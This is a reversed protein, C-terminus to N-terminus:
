FGGHHKMFELEEATSDRGLATNRHPFRGFRDIVEKHRMAYGLSQVNGVSEFLAISQAQISRDEAHQFPMYLFLRQEASLAKDFGAAIAQEALSLAIADTAFARPSGRFLNRPFQDLVIVTALAHRATSPPASSARASLVEYLALFRKRCQQDVVENRLFWDQPSLEDFWFRMVEEIWNEAITM